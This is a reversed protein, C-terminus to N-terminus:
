NQGMFSDEKDWLRPRAETGYVPGVRDWLRPRPGSYPRHMFTVEGTGYVLGRQGMSAVQEM